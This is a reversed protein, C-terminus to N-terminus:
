VRTPSRSASIYPGLRGVRSRVAAGLGATRLAGVYAGVCMATGVGTKALAPAGALTPVLLASGAVLARRRTMAGGAPGQCRLLSLATGGRGGCHVPLIAPTSVFADCPVACALVVAALTARIAGHRTAGMM